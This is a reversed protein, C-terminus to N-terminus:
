RNRIQSHAVHSIATSLVPVATRVNESHEVDRHRALSGIVVHKAEVRRSNLGPLRNIDVLHGVSVLRLNLMPVLSQGGALLRTDNPNEYLIRADEDITNPAHYAFANPKM